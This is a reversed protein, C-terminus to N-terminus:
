ESSLCMKSTSPTNDRKCGGAFPLMMKLRHRLNVEFRVLSTTKVNKIQGNAHSEIIRFKTILCGGFNCSSCETHKNKVRTVGNNSPMLIARTARSYDNYEKM